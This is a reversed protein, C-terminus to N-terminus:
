KTANRKSQNDQVLEGKCWNHRLYTNHGKHELWRDNVLTECVNYKKFHIESAPGNKHGETVMRVDLYGCSIALTYDREGSQNLRICNQSRMQMEGLNTSSERSDHRCPKVLVYRCCLM